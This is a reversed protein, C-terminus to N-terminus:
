VQLLRVVRLEHGGSACPVGSFEVVEGNAVQLRDRGGLLANMIRGVGRSSVVLLKRELRPRLSELAREVRASFEDETEGGPPPVKNMILGETDAIPRGNWEGLRRENLLADIEVPLDGLVSSIILATQRSRILQSAVIEEIALGKRAIEEALLFAQECGVGALPIDLDGGCRLGKLNLDTAGHRVFYLTFPRNIAFSM